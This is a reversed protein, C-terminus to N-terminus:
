NGCILDIITEAKHSWDNERAERDLLSMYGDDGQLEVSEEIKHVFDKSDKAILVSEYKRCEPMDTTVIPKHLAMYEFLKVPNTAETIDNIVFPIMLVDAERAYYKLIHYDRSGFFHVNELSEVDNSDYSTDYKIGFLVINYRDTANLAKLIEYDFWKAMAGYYCLLPKDSQMLERFEPEFNFDPIQFEQFFKYDVGNSSLALNVDGRKEMVDKVLNDATTVVFVDKNKMVFDYKDMINQPLRDTGALDASIHDIYEYIFGYGKEMYRRIDSISLKWDTSYLEIFKPKRIHSLEEELIANLKINNFNFLYLNDRQKRFTAVRDTMSTVEYFVICRQKALNNSIHQPRQFLEVNYGFSSRWLIVRDYNCSTLIHRIRSRYKRANIFTGIDIRDLYNARAYRYCKVLFTHFDNKRYVNILKSLKEGM